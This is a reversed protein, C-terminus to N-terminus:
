DDMIALIKESEDRTLNAVPQESIPNLLSLYRNSLNESYGADWLFDSNYVIKIFHLPEKVNSIITTDWPMIAVMSNKKIPYQKGNITLLAKGSLFLWFRSQQHILPKTANDIFEVDYSCLKRKDYCSCFQEQIEQLDKNKM